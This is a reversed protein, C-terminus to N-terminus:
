SNVSLIGKGKCNRWACLMQNASALTYYSVHSEKCWNGPQGSDGLLSGLSSCKGQKPLPSVVALLFKQIIIADSPSVSGRLFLEPLSLYLDLHARLPLLLSNHHSDSERHFYHSLKQSYSPSSPHSSHAVAVMVKLGRLGLNKTANVHSNSMSICSLMSMGSCFTNGTGLQSSNSPLLIEIQWCQLSSSRGHCANGMPKAM